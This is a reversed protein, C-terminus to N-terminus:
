SSRTRKVDNNWRCGADRAMELGSQFKWTAVIERLMAIKAQDPAQYRPM